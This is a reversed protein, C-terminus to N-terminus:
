CHYYYRGYVFVWACSANGSQGFIAVGPYDPQATQQFVCTNPTCTSKSEPIVICGSVTAVDKCQIVRVTPRLPDSSLTILIGKNQAAASMPLLGFVGALLAIVFSQSFRM